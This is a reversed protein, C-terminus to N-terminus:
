TNKYVNQSSNRAVISKSYKTEAPKWQDIGYMEMMLREYKDAATKANPDIDFKMGEEFIKVMGKSLNGDGQMMEDNFDRLFNVMGQHGKVKFNVGAKRFMRRFVDNIETIINSKVSINGQALAEIFVTFMEDFQVSFDGNHDADFKYQDFKGSVNDESAVYSRTDQYKEKNNLLEERLLYSLAKLSKPNNQLTKYLMVHLM